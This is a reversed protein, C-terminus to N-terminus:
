SSGIDQLILTIGRGIRKITLDDSERKKITFIINVFTHIPDDIPIISNRELWKGAQETTYFKPSFIISQINEM